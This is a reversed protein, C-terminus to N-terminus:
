RAFGSSMTTDWDKHVYYSGTDRVQGRLVLILVEIQYRRLVWIM